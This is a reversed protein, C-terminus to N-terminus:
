CYELMPEPVPKAGVQRCAMIQDLSQWNVSAYIRWKAKIISNIVWPEPLECVAWSCRSGLVHMLLFRPSKPPFTLYLASELSADLWHSVDNCLLATEWQSPAFRIDAGSTHHPCFMCCLLGSGKGHLCCFMGFRSSWYCAQQHGPKWYLYWWVRPDCLSSLFSSITMWTFKSLRHQIFM